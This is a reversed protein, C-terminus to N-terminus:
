YYKKNRKEYGNGRKMRIFDNQFFEVNKLTESLKVAM